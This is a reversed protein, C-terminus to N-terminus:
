EKNKDTLYKYLLQHVFGRVCYCYIIKVVYWLQWHENGKNFGFFFVAIISRSIDMSNYSSFFSSFVSSFPVKLCATHSPIWYEGSNQLSVQTLAAILENIFCLMNICWSTAAVIRSYHLLIKRTFTQIHFRYAWKKFKWLGLSSMIVPHWNKLLTNLIAVFLFYYFLSVVQLLWFLFLM